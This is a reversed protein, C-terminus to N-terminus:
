FHGFQLLFVYNENEWSVAPMICAFLDFSVSRSRILFEQSSSVMKLNWTLPSFTTKGLPWNSTQYGLTNQLVDFNLSVCSLYNHRGQLITCLLNASNSGNKHSFAKRIKSNKLLHIPKQTFPLKEWHENQSIM